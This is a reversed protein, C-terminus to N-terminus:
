TMCMYLVHMPKQTYLCVHVHVYTYPMSLINLISPTFNISFTKPTKASYLSSISEMEESVKEQAEVLQKEVAELQTTYSEELAAKEQLSM